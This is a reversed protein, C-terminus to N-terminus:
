KAKVTTELAPEEFQLYIRIWNLYKRSRVRGAETPRKGHCLLFKGLRHRQRFQDKKAVERARVLDRLAEHPADPLDEAAAV